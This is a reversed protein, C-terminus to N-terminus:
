AVEINTTRVEEERERKAVAEAGGTLLAQIQAQM